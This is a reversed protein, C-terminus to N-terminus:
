CTLTHCVPLSQLHSWGAVEACPSLNLEFLHSTHSASWSTFRCLRWRDVLITSSSPCSGTLGSSGVILVVGGSRWSRRAVRASIWASVVKISVDTRARCVM